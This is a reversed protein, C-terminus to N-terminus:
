YGLYKATVWSYNRKKVKEKGKKGGEKGKKSKLAAGTAYPFEWGLPWILATGAPRCRCCCLIWAM